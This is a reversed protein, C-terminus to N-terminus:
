KKERIKQEALELQEITNIGLLEEDSDLRCIEVKRGEESLLLPVDTLYYEAQANTRRLLTLKERLLPASFVYVSSNIEKIAAEEPSCDKQERIGAFRGEADRLIRGYGTPDAAEATLVTCDAGTEEHRRCLAQYTERTVLPMDGATILISGEYDAPLTDMGCRAAHGTGLQEAQLATPYNGALYEEVMERGFGVIVTIDEPAVFDLADLVYKILPEGCARKMVKPVLDGEGSRLRKGKGAALIMVKM